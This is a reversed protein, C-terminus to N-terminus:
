FRRLVQGMVGAAPHPLAHKRRHSPRSRGGAHGPCGDARQPPQRLLNRQGALAAFRRGVDFGANRARAPSPRRMSRPGRTRTRSTSWGNATRLSVGAPRRFRDPQLPGPSASAPPRCCLCIESTFVIQKGDPSWVAGIEDAPDSTLRRRLNGDYSWLDGKGGLPQGPDSSRVVVRSDDPSLAIDADFGPEGVVGLPDGKRNFWTLQSRSVSGGQFALYGNNSVTFGGGAATPGSVFLQEAIPVADGSLILSSVDFPQAFLASGRVFLLHGNAYKATSGERMLQTRETTDLSGVYLGNPQAESGGTVGVALYLFHRGDPLFYPSYHRNEGTAPDIKTAAVPTGGAASVGLIEAVPTNFVGFLIVGDDNWPGGTSNTGPLECLFTPAGGSSDVKMLRSRRKIDESFFGLYRSDPSWFPYVAGETGEIREAALSGLRRVWLWIVGDRGAATFALRQGDPSIGLRRAPVGGQAVSRDTINTGPPPLITSKL